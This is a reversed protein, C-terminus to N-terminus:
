TRRGKTNLTPRTPRQIEIESRRKIDAVAWLTAKLVGVSFVKSSNKDSYGSVMKGFGAMDLPKGSKDRYLEFLLVAIVTLFNPHMNREIWRWQLHRFHRAESFHPSISGSRPTGDFNTTAPSIQAGEFLSVIWQAMDIEDSTFHRSHADVASRVRTAIPSSSGAAPYVKIEQVGHALKQERMVNPDGLNRLRIGDSGIVYRGSKIAKKVERDFEARSYVKSGSSGAKIGNTM